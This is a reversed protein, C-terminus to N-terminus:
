VIRKIKFIKIWISLTYLRMVLGENYVNKKFNELIQKFTDKKFINLSLLLSINEIITQKNIDMWQRQPTIFGKKIKNYLHMSGFFIVNRCM